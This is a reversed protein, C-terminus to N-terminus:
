KKIELEFLEPDESAPEPALPNPVTDGSSSKAGAPALRQVKLSFSTLNAWCIRTPEHMGTPVCCSLSSNTWSRPWSPTKRVKGDNFLRSGIPTLACLTGVVVLLSCVGFIQQLVLAVESGVELAIAAATCGAVARKLVNRARHQAGM